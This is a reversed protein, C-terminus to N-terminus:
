TKTQQLLKQNQKWMQPYLPNPNRKQKKKEKKTMTKTKASPQVNTASEDLEGDDARVASTSDGAPSPSLQNLVEDLLPDSSISESEGGESSSSTSSSGSSNSESNADKTDAEADANSANPASQSEDEDALKRKM